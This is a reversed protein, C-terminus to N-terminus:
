GKPGDAGESEARLQDLVGTMELVHRVQTSARSVSFARQQTACLTRIGLISHLGSSDIFTVGALDLEVPADPNATLQAVVEDFVEKSALDIEGVLTVVCIGAGLTFEM